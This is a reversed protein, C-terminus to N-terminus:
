FLFARGARASDLCHVFFSTATTSCTSFHVTPVGHAAAELPAWPYLFDFLLLDPRLEDLLAGIRPAALDCARKLTSVLRSPLHKTTHLEPPLNPPM